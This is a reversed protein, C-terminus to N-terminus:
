VILSQLYSMIIRYLLHNDQGNIECTILYLTAFFAANCLIIVKLTVDIMPGIIELM